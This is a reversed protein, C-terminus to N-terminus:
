KPVAKLPPVIRGNELRHGQGATRGPLSEVLEVAARLEAELGAVRRELQEVRVTLGEAIQRYKGGGMRPSAKKRSLPIELVGAAHSVHHHNVDLGVSERVMGAVTHRDLGEAKIQGEIGRLFNWLALKERDDLMRPRKKEPREAEESM